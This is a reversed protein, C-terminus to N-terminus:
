GERGMERREEEDLLQLLVVTEEKLEKETIEDCAKCAQHRFSTGQCHTCYQENLKNTELCQM